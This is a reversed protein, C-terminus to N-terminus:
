KTLILKGLATLRLRYIAKGHEIEVENDGGFLSASALRRPRTHGPAPAQMHERLDSTAGAPAARLRHDDAGRM